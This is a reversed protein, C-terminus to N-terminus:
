PVCTRPRCRELRLREDGYLTPTDVLTPGARRDVPDHLADPPQEAPGGDDLVHGVPEHMGQLGDLRQPRPLSFGALREAEVSGLGSRPM